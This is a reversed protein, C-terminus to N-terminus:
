CVSVPHYHNNKKRKPFTDFACLERTHMGFVTCSHTFTNTANQTDGTVPIVDGGNIKWLM